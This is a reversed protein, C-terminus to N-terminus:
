DHIVTLEINMLADQDVTSAVRELLSMERAQKARWQSGITSNALGLGIRSIEQHDGGSIADARHTAHRGRLQADATRRAEAEAEVQTRGRRLQSQLTANFITQWTTDAMTERATMSEANYVPGRAVFAARNASWDRVRLTNLRAQHDTVQRAFEMAYVRRVAEPQASVHAIFPSFRFPPDFPGGGLLVLLRQLLPILTNWIAEIAGQAREGAAADQIRRAATWQGALTELREAAPQVQGILAEAQGRRPEPANRATRRWAQLHVTVPAAVSAMQTRGRGDVSLRHSARGAAFSRPRVLWDFVRRAQRQVFRGLRRAQAVIWTVVRDMARDIPARLRTLLARVRAAISGLGLFGAVFSIVPPILRALTQEVRAAAAGINGAAIAAMAGLFSTVVEAIRRLERVLASIAGYISVIASIFGAGPILMALLRPVARTVVFGVIMDRISDIAMQRLNALSERLQAWAAIPGDRVLTTVLQFGMEMARVAPEGVQRVLRARLNQWTLGLVSFVFKAIERLNLAQPIYVSPLAGTLWSLLGGMLHRVFNGAFRQFGLRAARVLNLAFGIPNRFISAIAAGARRLHAMAGPAVVSFVIELLRLVTGGAWAVFRGAFGAFVRGVRVLARPVLVLDVLQLARLADVFLSPIQAVFGTLGAVAGEFWAWAQAVANGRQINQWVEEQGILTMFGGILAAPTRAVADGTIPNFGLVACLLPWGRTPELLGAIPRLIADRIFDVIGGVLGRGFALIRDIPETVMRRARAWVGSLDFIDTWSLDDLFRDIAGRISAGIDGLASLQGEAWAAVREVIGHNDLAQTILPGGPLLQILARLLTAATRPVDRLSIPNFGLLFTLLTFGPLWAAKDAFYELADQVGLRHVTTAPVRQRVTTDMSRQVLAPSQTSGRQQVTHVLEHAILERGEARGPQFGGRSFFIDRGATFAAANLRRSARAANDDTHLRVPSFDADLRAEMERRLPLPM